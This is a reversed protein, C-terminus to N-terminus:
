PPPDPAAGTDSPMAALREADRILTSLRIGFAHSIPVLTKLQIAASRGTEIRYLQDQTTASAAALARQSMGTAVRRARIAAGIDPLGIDTKASMLMVIDSMHAYTLISAMDRKKNLKLYNSSM